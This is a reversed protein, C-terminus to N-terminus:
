LSLTIQKDDTRCVLPFSQHYEQLGPCPTNRIHQSHSFKSCIATIKQQWTQNDSGQIASMPFFVVSLGRPFPREYKPPFQGYSKSVLQHSWNKCRTKLDVLTVAYGYNRQHISQQKCYIPLVGSLHDHEVHKEGLNLDIM